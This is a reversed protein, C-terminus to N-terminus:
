IEASMNLHACQEFIRFFFEFDTESIAYMFALIMPKYNKLEGTIVPSSEIRYQDIDNFYHFRKELMKEKQM